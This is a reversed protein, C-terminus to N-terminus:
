GNDVVELEYILNGNEITYTPYELDSNAQYTVYLDGLRVDMAVIGIGPDGKDGQEGQPGIVLRENKYIGPTYLPETLLDDLDKFILEYLENDVRLKLENEILKTPDGTYGKETTTRSGSEVHEGKQTTGKSESTSTGESESDNVAEESNFGYVKSKSTAEGKSTTDVEYNVSKTIEPTEVKTKKYNALPNYKIKLTLYFENWKKLYRVTVIKALDDVIDSDVPDTTLDYMRQYMRSIPKDGSRGLYYLTNLSDVNEENIYELMTLDGLKILANFIGYKTHIYTDILNKKNVVISM